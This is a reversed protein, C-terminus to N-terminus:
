PERCACGDHGAAAARSAGRAGAGRRGSTGLGPPNHGRLYLGAHFWSRGLPALLASPGIAWPLRVDWSFGHRWPAAPAILTWRLRTPPYSTRHRSAPQGRERDKRRLRSASRKSTWTLSALCVPMSARTAPPVSVSSSYELLGPRRDVGCRQRGPRAGEVDAQIVPVDARREAAVRQAVQCGLDDSPPLGIPEGAAGRDLAGALAEGQQAADPRSLGEVRWSRWRSRSRSATM